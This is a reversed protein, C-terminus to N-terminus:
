PDDAPARVQHEHRPEGVHDLRHAGRLRDGLREPGDGVVARDQQEARGADALDVQCGDPVLLSRQDARDVVGDVCSARRTQRAARRTM